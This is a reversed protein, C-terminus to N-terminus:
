CIFVGTSPIIRIRSASRVLLQVYTQVSALGSELDHARMYLLAELLCVVVPLLQVVARHASLGLAFVISWMGCYFFFTAM